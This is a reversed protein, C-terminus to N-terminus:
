KAQNTGRRNRHRKRSPRLGNKRKGMSKPREDAERRLKDKEWEPIEPIQIM